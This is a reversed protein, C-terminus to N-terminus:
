NLASAFAKSWEVFASVTNEVFTAGENLPTPTPESCLSSMWILGSIAIVVFFPKRLESYMDTSKKQPQTSRINAKQPSTRQPNTRNNTTKQRPPPKPTAPRGGIVCQPCSRGKGFYWHRQSCQELETMTRDLTRMWEAASPRASPRSHGTIFCRVFLNQIEPHLRKWLLVTIRDPKLVSQNPNMVFYGMKTTEDRDPAEGAGYYRGVFPHRGEMLLHYILVALGFNDQEPKRHIKRLDKGHLEPPLFERVGVPCPYPEGSQRNRVQFSDSDILTVRNRNTIYANNQNIDGIVYDQQHLVSISNALGRAVLCLDRYGINPAETRRLAPNYYDVLGNKKEVKQMLFGIVGGNSGKLIDVPWAVCVHGTRINKIRPPYALMTELKRITPLAPKALYIKAVLDPYSNVQYVAGEGGRGIEDHSSLAITGIKKSWATITRSAM